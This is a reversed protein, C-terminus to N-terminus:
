LWQHVIEVFGVIKVMHAIINSEWKMNIIGLIYSMYLQEFQLAILPIYSQIEKQTTSLTIGIMNMLM